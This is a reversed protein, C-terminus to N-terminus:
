KAQLARSEDYTLGLSQSLFELQSNSFSPVSQFQQEFYTRISGSNANLYLRMVEFHTGLPGNLYMGNGSADRM